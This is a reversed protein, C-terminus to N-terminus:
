FSHSQIRSGTLDEPFYAGYVPVANGILHCLVFSFFIMIVVESWNDDLFLRHWANQSCLCSDLEDIILWDSGHSRVCEEWFPSPDYLPSLCTRPASGWVGVLSPLLILWSQFSWYLVLGRSVITDSLSSCSAGWVMLNADSLWLDGTLHVPKCLCTKGHSILILLM